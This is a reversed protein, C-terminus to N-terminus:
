DNIGEKISSNVLIGIKALMFDTNMHQRCTLLLFVIFIIYYPYMNGELKLVLYNLIIIVAAVIFYLMGEGKLRKKSNENPYDRISLVYHLAGIISWGLAIWAAWFGSYILAIAILTMGGFILFSCIFSEITIKRSFFIKAFYQLYHYVYFIACGAALITLAHTFHNWTYEMDVFYRPGYGKIENWIAIFLVISGLLMMCFAIFNSIASKEVATEYYVSLPVNVRDVVDKTSTQDKMNKKLECYDRVNTAIQESIKKRCYGDLYRILYDHVIIYPSEFIEPFIKKIIKQEEFEKITNIITSEHAFTLNKFDSITLGTSYGCNSLAYLIIMSKDPDDTKSFLKDFYEEKIFDMPKNKELLRKSDAVAGSQFFRKAMNLEIMSISDSSAVNLLDEFFKQHKSSKDPLSDVIRNLIEKNEKSSKTLFHTKFDFTKVDVVNNISTIKREVGLANIIFSYLDEFANVDEANFAQRERLGIPLEHPSMSHYLSFLHKDVRGNLIQVLFSHWEHHVWQANLNGVCSGVAILARSSELAENIAVGFQAIGHERLEENSFFVNIDRERLFKYLNQAIESDPLRNRFSIFVDYIIEEHKDIIFRSQLKEIIRAYDEPMCVFAVYVNSFKENILFNTVCEFISEKEIVREFQDFIIVFQESKNLCKKNFDFIDNEFSELDRYSDADFRVSNPNELAYKKVLTSKGSGSKGVIVAYQQQEFSLDLFDKLKKQQVDRKIGEKECEIIFHSIEVSLPKVKKEIYIKKICFFLSIVVGLLIIYIQIANMVNNTLILERISFFSYQQIFVFISLTLFFFPLLLTSTNSFFYKKISKRLNQNSKM